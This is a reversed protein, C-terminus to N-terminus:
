AEEPTLDRVEGLSQLAPHDGQRRKFLGPEEKSVSKVTATPASESQWLGEIMASAISLVKSKAPSFIGTSCVSLVAPSEFVPITKLM